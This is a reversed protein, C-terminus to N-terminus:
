VGNDLAATVGGALRTTPAVPREARTGLNFPPLDLGLRRLGLGM